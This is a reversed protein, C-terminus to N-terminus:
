YQETVWCRHLSDWYTRTRQPALPTACPTQRQWGNMERNRREAMTQSEEEGRRREAAMDCGAVSMVVLILMWRM